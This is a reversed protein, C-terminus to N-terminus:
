LKLLHRIFDTVLPLLTFLGTMIVTLRITLDSKLQEIDKKLNASTALELAKLDEKTALNELLVNQTEKIANAILAAEQEREIKSEENKSHSISVYSKVFDYKDFLQFKPQQVAHAM